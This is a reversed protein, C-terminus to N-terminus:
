EGFYKNIFASNLSSEIQNEQNDPLEWLFDLGSLQEIEDITKKHDKIKDSRPTDQDFFFAAVSINSGEQICIIKWYGSPVKHTENANPLSPMIRQYVPGTMVYVELVDRVLERVKDELRKWPGQNLASKQPTINSLYNTHAAHRSGKFSALPAQHGREYGHANNAGQYDNEDNREPELTEEDALWPDAKWVRDVTLDGDVEHMSLRYAVWDAFKTDDNNSLAYIDRIILDNSAPTGFPYGYFFHECHIEQRPQGVSLQASFIFLCIYLSKM